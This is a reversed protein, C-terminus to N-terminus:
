IFRIFVHGCGDVILPRPELLAMNLATLWALQVYTPRPDFCGSGREKCGDILCFEIEICLGPSM